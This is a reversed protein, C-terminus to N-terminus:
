DAGSLFRTVKKAITLISFFDPQHSKKRYCLLFALSSFFSLCFFSLSAVDAADHHLRTAKIWLCATGLRLHCNISLQCCIVVDSVLLCPFSSSDGSSPFHPRTEKYTRTQTHTHCTRKRPHTGEVGNTATCTHEHTETHTHRLRM